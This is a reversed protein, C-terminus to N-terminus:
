RLSAEATEGVPVTVPLSVTEEGRRVVVTWEGPPVGRLLMRQREGERVAQVRDLLSLAPLLDTGEGDRLAVVQADGPLHVVVDGGPQLVVREHVRGDEAVRDEDVVIRTRHAAYGAGAAALFLEGERADFWARGSASTTCTTWGPGALCAVLDAVPRGAPDVVDVVLGFTRELSFELEVPGDGAAVDRGQSERGPAFARVSYPRGAEIALAFSGDPGTTVSEGPAGGGILESVLGGPRAEVRVLQMSFGRRGGAPTATVRAGALGEGSEAARVLGRVPRSPLEITVEFRERDGPVEVIRTTRQGAADITVTARGPPVGPVRFRGDPGTWAAAAFFPPSGTVGREIALHGVVVRADAVPAGGRLLTGEVTTGVRFDVRVEGGEPVTAQRQDMAEIEGAFAHRVVAVSGEPIRDVVYSGDEATRASGLLGAEGRVEIVQGPLPTGDWRTVTGVVRGGRGLEITVPGPPQDGSVALSVDAPAHDPHEAHLVVSGAPIGGLVFGGDPGTVAEDLGDRVRVIAGEIPAGTGREVVVGEIEIGRDLVLELDDVVEGAALEIEESRAPARGAAGAHLVWTGAPLGEVRFRAESPPAEDDALRKGRFTRREAGEGEDVRRATVSPERLPEGDDTRVTVELVAGPSLVIELPGGPLDLDEEAPLLNRGTPPTVRVRWTGESLGAATFRGDEGTTEETVPLTSMGALRLVRVRAGAVPRGDEDLVRGALVLGKEVVLRGLDLTRGRAVELNDLIMTRGRPPRIVLRWTGPPVDALRLVGDGGSKGRLPEKGEGGRMRAEAPVGPVPRGAGDVLLAVITGGSPHAGPPAAIATSSLVVVLTFLTGVFRSLRLVPRM